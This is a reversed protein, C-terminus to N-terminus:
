MCLAVGEPGQLHPNNLRRDDQRRGHHDLAAVGSWRSPWRDGAAPRGKEVYEIRLMQKSSPLNRRGGRYPTPLVQGAPPIAYAAPVAVPAAVAPAAAPVDVVEVVAEEGALLLVQGAQHREALAAVLGPV